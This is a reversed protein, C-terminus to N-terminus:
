DCQMARISIFTFTFLLISAGGGSVLQAKDLTLHGRGTRTSLAGRVACPSGPSLGAETEKQVYEWLKVEFTETKGEGDDCEVLLTSPTKGWGQTLRYVFCSMLGISQGYSLVFNFVFSVKRSYPAKLYSVVRGPVLVATGAQMGANFRAFEQYKRPYCRLAQEM